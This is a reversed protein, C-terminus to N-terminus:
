TCNVGVPFREGSVTSRMVLAVLREDTARVWQPAAQPEQFGSWRQEARLEEPVFRSTMQLKAEELIGCFPWFSRDSLVRTYLFSANHSGLLLFPHRYTRM